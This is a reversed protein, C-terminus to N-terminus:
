VNEEKPKFAKGRKNNSRDKDTDRLAELEKRGEATIIKSHLCNTTFTNADSKRGYAPNVTVFGLSM